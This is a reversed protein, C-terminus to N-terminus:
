GVCASTKVGEVLGFKDFVGNIYINTGSSNWTVAVHTWKNLPLVAVSDLYTQVAGVSYYYVRINDTGNFMLACYVGGKAWITMTTYIFGTGGTYQGGHVSPSLWLMFSGITPNNFFTTAYEFSNLYCIDNIDDFNLCSNFKGAVWGTQDIGGFLVMKYSPNISNYTTAQGILNENFHWLSTARDVYQSMQRSFISNPFIILSLFLLIIKKNM